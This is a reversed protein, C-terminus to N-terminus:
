NETKQIIRKEQYLKHNLLHINEGDLKTKAMLKDAIEDNIIHTM